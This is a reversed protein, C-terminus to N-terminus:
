GRTSGLYIAGLTVLAGLLQLPELDEGFLLVGWVTALVPQLLLILGGVSGKVHVLSKSIAWWGLSQAILALLLLLLWAIWSPPLIPQSEVAVTGGLFVSAYLSFWALPALSTVGVSRRGAGRLLILFVGYVAGTALGYAIGHLYDTTFPVDSGVGVLMVVGIMAVLAMALFRWTLSERFFLASLVATVFVQTNGLITAMGAGALVVSRHWVYLDAAFALGALLLLGMAPGPVRLSRRRLATVGLILAAGLVCRWLAIATPGLGTQHIAKVLIPALSVVCAGAALTAAPRRDSFLSM